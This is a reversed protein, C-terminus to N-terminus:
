SAPETLLHNLELDMQRTRAVLQWFQSHDKALTQFIDKALNPQRERVHTLGLRDWCFVSTEQDPAFALVERYLQSSKAFNGQSWAHQAANQVLYAQLAAPLPQSLLAKYLPGDAPSPFNGSSLSSVGQGPLEQLDGLADWSPIRSGAGQSCLELRWTQLASTLESQERQWRKIAELFGPLGQSGWALQLLEILARSRVQPTGTRWALDFLQEAEAFLGHKKLLRGVFLAAEPPRTGSPHLEWLTLAKEALSLPGPLRDMMQREVAMWGAMLPERLEEASFKTSLGSLKELFDRFALYPDAGGGLALYFGIILCRMRARHAAPTNPYLAAALTYVKLALDPLGQTEAQSAIQLFAPPLGPGNSVNIWKWLNDLSPATEGRSVLTIKVSHHAETGAAKETQLNDSAQTDAAKKSGPRVPGQTRQRSWAPDPWAFGFGFVVLMMLWLFRYLM